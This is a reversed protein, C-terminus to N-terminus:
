VNLVFTEASIPPSLIRRMQSVSLFNLFRSLEIVDETRTDLLDVAGEENGVCYRTSGPAVAVVTVAEYQM